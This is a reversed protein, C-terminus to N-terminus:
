ISSAVKIAPSSPWKPPPKSWGRRPYSRRPAPTSVQQAAASWGGRDTEVESPSHMSEILHTPAYKPRSRPPESRCSLGKRPSHGPAPCLLHSHAPDNAHAGCLVDRAPAQPSWSWGLTGGLPMNALGGGHAWCPQPAGVRGKDPALDTSTSGFRVRGATGRSVVIGVVDPTDAGALGRAWEQCAPGGCCPTAGDRRTTVRVRMASCTGSAGKPM